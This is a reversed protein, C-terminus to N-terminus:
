NFTYYPFRKSPLSSTPLEFRSMPEKKKKKICNSLEFVESDELEVKRKMLLHEKLPMDVKIPLRALVSNKENTM